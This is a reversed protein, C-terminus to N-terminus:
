LDQGTARIIMDNVEMRPPAALAFVVASAVDDPVLILDNYVFQNYAAIASAM